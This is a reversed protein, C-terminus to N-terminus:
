PACERQVLAAFADVLRRTVAASQPGRNPLPQGDVAAVPVIERLSSTLFAADADRLDAPVLTREAATLGTAPALEMIAARTVGPLVGCALPPTLLSQGAVVFLNSATAECLHGATDLFLADDAGAARAEALALVSEVYALTKLGATRAHENRRGRATHLSVAPPAAATALPQVTLVVTPTADPPPLLGRPGVGRSVTLRVAADGYGATRADRMAGDILEPLSSPLLIGLTRAGHALRQLHRDLRFLTGHYARMTEFLGDALTFGRDLASVHATSAPDVRRGNVWLLAEPVAAVSATM